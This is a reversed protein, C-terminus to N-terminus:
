RVWEKIAQNKNTGKGGRAECHFCTVQYQNNGYGTPTITFYLMDCGCGCRIKNNPLKECEKETLWERTEM